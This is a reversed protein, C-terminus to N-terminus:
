QWLIGYITSLLLWEPLSLNSTQKLWLLSFIHDKGEAVRDLKISTM